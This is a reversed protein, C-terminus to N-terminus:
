KFKRNKRKSFVINRGLFTLTVKTTYVFFYPKAGDGRKLIALKLKYEIIM